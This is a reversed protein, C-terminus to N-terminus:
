KKWKIDTDKKKQRALNDKGVRYNLYFVSQPFSFFFSAWWKSDFCAWCIHATLYIVAAELKFSLSFVWLNNISFIFLSQLQLFFLLSSGHVMRESQIIGICKILCVAKHYQQALCEFTKDACHPSFCIWRNCLGFLYGLTIWTHCIHWLM